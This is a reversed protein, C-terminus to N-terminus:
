QAGIVAEVRIQVSQDNQPEETDAVRARAWFITNTDDIQENIDLSMGWDEPTGASGEDDPALQWKDADGAGNEISLQAHRGEEEVTEFGDDCRAALKIWDGENYGSDPVKIAGSEIPNEWDGSSVLTGDTQGATPNDKYIKIKSM